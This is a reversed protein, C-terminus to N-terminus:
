ALDNRAGHQELLDPVVVVDLGGVDDIDMDALQPPLKIRFAAFEIIWVTRPEPSM